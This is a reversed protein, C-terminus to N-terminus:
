RIPRTLFANNLQDDILHPCSFVHLRTADWFDGISGRFFFSRTHCIFLPRQVHLPVPLPIFSTRHSFTDRGRLTLTVALISRLPAVPCLTELPLGFQSCM